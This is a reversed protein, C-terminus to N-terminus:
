KEEALKRGSIFARFDAVCDDCLDYNKYHYGGVTMETVSSVCQGYCCNRSKFRTNEDYQTSLVLKDIKGQKETKGVIGLEGCNRCVAREFCAIQRNDFTATNRRELFM